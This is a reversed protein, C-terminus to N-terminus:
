HTTATRGSIVAPHCAWLDSDDVVDYNNGLYKNLPTDLNLMGKDVLKMVGYAFVPKSLSAAEFVTTKTVPKKTKANALGFAGTWVIKGNHILAISLGPVDAQQLLGPIDRELNSIAQKASPQQATAFLSFLLFLALAFTKSM